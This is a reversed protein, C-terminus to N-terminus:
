TGTVFGFDAIKITCFDACVLMNDLKIDRNCLGRDHIYNMGKLMQKFLYKAIPESFAGRPSILFDFLEGNEVLETALFAGTKQDGSQMWQVDVGSGVIRIVNPHNLARLAEIENRLNQILLENEPTGATVAKM